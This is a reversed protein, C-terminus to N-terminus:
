LIGVRNRMAVLTSVTRQLKQGAQTGELDRGILAGREPELTLTVQVANVKDWDAAPIANAKVLAASDSRKYMLQMNVVGAAIEDRSRQVNGNGLVTRYLSKGGNANDAVEWRISEPRVVGAPANGTVLCNPNTSGNRKSTFCYGKSNGGVDEKYNDIEDQTGGWFPKIINGNSGSNHGLADSPLATVKFINAVQPNCVMLVDGVAFDANSSVELVASPGDQAEVRVEDSTASSLVLSDPLTDGNETGFAGLEWQDWAVREAAPLLNLVNAGCPSGGAERIDRSLIEFAARGNEQIRNIANTSAFVRRNSLFLGGAAAVVLLGLVLSIMLEVLTFGSQGRPNKMAKMREM